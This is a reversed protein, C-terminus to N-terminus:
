VQHFITSDNETKSFIKVFVNSIKKNQYLLSDILTVRRQVTQFRKIIAATISLNILMVSFIAEDFSGSVCVSKTKDQSSNISCNFRDAM